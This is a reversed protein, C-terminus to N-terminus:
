GDESVVSGPGTPAATVVAKIGIRLDDIEDAVRCATERDNFLRYLTSGAGSIRMPGLGAQHLARYAEAVKPSVRFVAPELHNSLTAMLTEATAADISKDAMDTPMDAADEPRWADYVEATAVQVPVFALLVWGSWRLPVREVLEGRGRIMASPLSFFLPVDSGIEAGITAMEHGDLRGKWLENCLKMTTAADSSGGGLGSGVPIAKDIEIRLAPQSLGLRRALKLAAQCALNDQRELEPHSCTIAVGTGNPTCCRIRDCLNVGIVLSRLEHYGDSRTGVVDLTLNIKAPAGASLSTPALPMDLATATTM